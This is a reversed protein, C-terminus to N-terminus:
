ATDENRAAGKDSLCFSFGAMRYQKGGYDREEQERITGGMARYFGNNKV